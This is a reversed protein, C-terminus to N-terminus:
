WLSPQAPRPALRLMATMMDRDMTAATAAMAPSTGAVVGVAAFLAPRCLTKFRRRHQHSLWGSAGTSAAVGGLQWWDLLPIRLNRRMRGQIEVGPLVTCTGLQIRSSYGTLEGYHHQLLTATTEPNGVTVRRAAHSAAFNIHNFNM